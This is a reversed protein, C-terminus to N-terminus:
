GEMARSEPDGRQAVSRSDSGQTSARRGLTRGGHAAPRGLDRFAPAHDRDREHACGRRDCPPAAVSPRRRATRRAHELHRDSERLLDLAMMHPDFGMTGMKRCYLTYEHETGQVMKRM